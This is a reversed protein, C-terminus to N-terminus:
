PRFEDPDFRPERAERGLDLDCDVEDQWLARMGQRKRVLRPPGDGTLVEAALPRSNYNSAMSAAYAGSNGVALLDGAELEPLRLDRALFDGSECIPGVVDVPRERPEGSREVQIVEHEASYLAPRILDNMAADVIVFDRSPGSKQHLVRTVLIGANGVLYRGPEIMLSMNRPRLLESMGAALEDLPLPDEFLGRIGFGGGMDYADVKRVPDADIFDMVAEAARLYPSPELLLSGLHVHYAVLEINPDDHIADVLGAATAFDVGFKNESKGTAIYEHTGADVDPNLRLAVRTEAALQEAIAQIRELESASEVNFLGIGAELALQIEWDQKGVGAFVMQSPEAAAKLARLLEGGSVLDFGAHERAMYSLISGNSNAKVAYRINLAVDLFATRLAQLREHIKAASYVYVPTGVARAIDAVPVGDAYLRGDVYQFGHM